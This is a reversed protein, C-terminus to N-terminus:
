LIFEVVFIIMVAVWVGLLIGIAVKQALTFSSAKSM